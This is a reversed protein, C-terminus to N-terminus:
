CEENLVVFSHFLEGVGRVRNWGGWVEDLGVIGRDKMLGRSRKSKGDSSEDWRDDGRGESDNDVQLVSALEKALKQIFEREDNIMDATVPANKMTLGLNALSSRVFAAEEPEEFKTDPGSKRASSTLQENLDNALRVMDQAGRMLAELDSFASSMGQETSKANLEANQLM